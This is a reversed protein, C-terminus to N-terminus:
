AFQLAENRSRKADSRPLVRASRSGDPESRRSRCRKHAYGVALTRVDAFYASATKTTRGTRFAMGLSQKSLCKLNREKISWTDILQANVSAVRRRIPNPWSKSRTGSTWRIRHQGFPLSTEIRRIGADSAVAPLVTGDVSRQDANRSGEQGARQSRFVHISREISCTSLAPESNASRGFLMAYRVRMLEAALPEGLTRLLSRGLAVNRRHGRRSPPVQRNRQRLSSRRRQEVAGRAEGVVGTKVILASGSCRTALSRSDSPSMSRLREVFGLSRDTLPYDDLSRLPKIVRDEFTNLLDCLLPEVVEDLVSQRLQNESGTAQGLGRPRRRRASVFRALQLEPTTNETVM